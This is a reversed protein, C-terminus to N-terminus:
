VPKHLKEIKRIKRVNSWYCSPFLGQYFSVFTNGAVTEIAIYKKEKEIFTIAQRHHM